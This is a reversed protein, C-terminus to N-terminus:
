LVAKSRRGCCTGVVIGEAGAPFVSVVSTAVSGTLCVQSHLGYVIVRETLHLWTVAMLYRM